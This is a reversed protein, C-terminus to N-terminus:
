AVQGGAKGLKAMFRSMEPDFRDAAWGGGDELGFWRVEAFEGLDPTVPVRQDGELVFWLTVDTHPDAGRTPTVTLFFPDRGLGPHFPAAIGLEEEVERVVTRRPDEDPDVHGGPPLWARAKLHDVLLVSARREDVLVAYVVLHRPPTAPKAVRFLPAGSDVWDLTWRRDAAEREDHPRIGAVLARILPRAPDPSM